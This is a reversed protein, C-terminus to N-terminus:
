KEFIPKSLDTAEVLNIFDAINNRVARNISEVVKVQGLVAYDFPVFGDSTIEQAMLLNGTGRDVIEYIASVTTRAEIGSRQSPTVFETIRVSVNVKTAVDDKFILSRNIADQLGEKWIPPVNHNSAVKRQQLQTAYGVTLSRLEVNKRIDVVGVDQVTFDVPPVSTCGVAFILTVLCANFRKVSVDGFEGKGTWVIGDQSVASSM